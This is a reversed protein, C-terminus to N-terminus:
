CKWERRKLDRLKQGLENRREHTEAKIEGREQDWFITEALELAVRAEEAKTILYPLIRHLM